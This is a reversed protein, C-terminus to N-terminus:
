LKRYIFISLAIGLISSITINFLIKFTVVVVKLDIVLPESNMGFQYGFNLWKLYSIESVLSGIFGGIVIGSLVLLFLAWGNKNGNRQYSM